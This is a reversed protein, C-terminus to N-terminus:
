HYKGQYKLVFHKAEANNTTGYVDLHLANGQSTYVIKERMGGGCVSHKHVGQEKIVAYQHCFSLSSKALVAASDSKISYIHSVGFDILTINWRQGPQAELKFPCSNHGYNSLRLNIDSSSM